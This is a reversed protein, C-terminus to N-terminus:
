GGVAFFIIHNKTHLFLEGCAYSGIMLCDNMKNM